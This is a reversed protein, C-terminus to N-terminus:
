ANEGQAGRADQGTDRFPKVFPYKRVDKVVAAIRHAAGGNGYPNAIEGPTRRGAAVAVRVAAEISALADDAHVVSAARLRGAQRTGIDVAPVGVTAAEIVGSSSNGIVADVSALVRPYAAGLASVRAIRPDERAAADLTDLITERGEDMGPDTVILTGCHALSGALADRTWRELPAAPTATPPHYTFLGVPRVVEHGLVRALEEDTYPEAEVLRDLGPAGTVHVRDDPEGMQLLRRAADASAVCHADALKTVAHRVREDIAGETIEGGHVHVIRVNALLAAPVIYLLEWRDGLVVIADYTASAFLERAGDTLRAGQALMAGEDFVTMPEALAHIGGGYGSPRLRRALDDVGFAVGCLVDVMVDDDRDFAAIVPGLPGLDARTGVFVAVRVPQTM